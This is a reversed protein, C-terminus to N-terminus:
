FFCGSRVEHELKEDIGPHLESGNHRAKFYRSLESINKKNVIRQNALQYHSPTQPNTTQLFFSYDLTQIGTVIKQDNNNIDDIYKFLPAQIDLTHRDFNDLSLQQHYTNMRKHLIRLTIMSYLKEITHILDNYFSTSKM